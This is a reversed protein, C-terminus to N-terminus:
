FSWNGEVKNGDYTFISSIRTLQEKQAIVRYSPPGDEVVEQRDFTVGDDKMIINKRPRNERHSIVWTFTYLNANKHKSRSAKIQRAVDAVGSACRRFVEDFPLIDGFSSIPDIKPM